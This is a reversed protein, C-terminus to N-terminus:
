KYFLAYSRLVCEHNRREKHMTAGLENKPNSSCLANLIFDTDVSQIYTTYDYQTQPINPSKLAIYSISVQFCLFEEQMSVRCLVTLKQSRGVFEPVHVGKLTCGETSLWSFRWINAQSSATM